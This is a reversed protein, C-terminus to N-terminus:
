IDDQRIDSIEIHDKEQVFTALKHDVIPIVALQSGFFVVSLFGMTYVLPLKRGAFYIFLLSVVLFAHTSYLMVKGAEKNAFDWNEQSQM